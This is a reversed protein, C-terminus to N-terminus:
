FAELLFPQAAPFLARLQGAAAPPVTGYGRIPLEAPDLVGYVLAALGHGTLEVTPEGGPAVQLAGGDGCLTYVGEILPDSVRVTVQGSGAPLGTLDPVSLLRVMPAEQADLPSLRSQITMSADIVWTDPRDNPRLPLSVTAVQDTHRALWGLLLTRAVVDRYLFRWAFLKGGYGAIRYALYGVVEGGVRAVAAWHEADTRAQALDPDARLAMGHVDPQVAETVARVEAAADSYRLLEVDGPLPVRLLPTLDKPDLTVRREPPIGVYGFREYFSARFPYLASVVSGQERMECLAHDLLQRAFGRRRGAPHTAVGAVAGMPLLAGRVNQTMDITTVTCRPQEDDFLVYVQRQAEAAVNIRTLDDPAPSAGFAYMTLPRSTHLREEGEVRRITVPM